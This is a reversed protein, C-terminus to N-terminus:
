YQWSKTDAGEPATKLIHEKMIPAFRQNGTNGGGRGDQEGKHGWRDTYISTGISAVNLRDNKSEARAYSSSWFYPAAMAAGAAVTRKLFDRRSSSNRNM